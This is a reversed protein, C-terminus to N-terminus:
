GSLQSKSIRTLVGQDNKIDIDSIGEVRNFDYEFDKMFKIFDLENHEYQQIQQIFSNEVKDFLSKIRETKEEIRLFIDSKEHM